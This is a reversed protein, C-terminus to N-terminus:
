EKPQCLRLIQLQSRKIHIFEQTFPGSKRLLNKVYNDHLNDVQEKYEQQLREKHKHYYNRSHRASEEKSQYRKSGHIARYARQYLKNEERHTSRYKTSYEASKKLHAKRYNNNTEYVCKKCASRLGGKGNSAFNELSQLGNEPCKTCIKSEM